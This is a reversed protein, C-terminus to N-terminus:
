KKLFLKLDVDKYAAVTANNKIICKVVTQGVLNKKDNGHVVLFNVPNKQEKDLLAKKTEEYSAKEGAAKNEINSNCSISIFLFVSVFFLSNRM